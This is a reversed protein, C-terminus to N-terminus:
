EVWSLKYFAGPSLLLAVCAIKLGIFHKNLKEDEIVVMSRMSNLCHMPHRKNLAMAKEKQSFLGLM